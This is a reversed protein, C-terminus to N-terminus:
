ASVDRITIEGNLKKIFIEQPIEELDIYDRGLFSISISSSVGRCVGKDDCDERDAGDCFCLCRIDNCIVPPNENESFSLVDWDRPSEIIFSRIEEEGITNVIEVISELNKTAQEMKPKSTFIGYLSTSLYLLLGIGIVALIIKVIEETTMEGKKNM